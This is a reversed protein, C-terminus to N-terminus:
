VASAPPAAAGTSAPRPRDALQAIRTLGMAPAQDKVISLLTDRQDTRGAAAYAEALRRRHNTAWILAGASEEREIAQEYHHIAADLDGRLEALRGLAGAVSGICMLARASVVLRDAFPALLDELDAGLELDGLLYAAESLEKTASLWNTDRPWSRPVGAARQAAVDHRAEEPQGAAALAWVKLARYAWGAPSNRVREGQWLIDIEEAREDALSVIFQLRELFQVNPDRARRGLKAAQRQLERAQEVHGKLFARAARWAPVYWAFASLPMRAATSAYAELEADVARGDGLEELDVIRWTRAQLELGPDEARLALALMERALELRERTHDPGWLVVHRAGLAAALTRADGSNRASSLAATSLEYRRGPDKDYALEFALRAQVRAVLDTDDHGLADLGEELIAVRAPDVAVITVAPGVVGLVARALLVGDHLRRAQSLAAELVSTAEENRDSARLAEGLSLRLRVRIELPAGAADCATLARRLLEAADAPAHSGMLEIAAQDALDAARAVSIAPAAALAHGAAAALLEPSNRVRPELAEVAGAHLATRRGPTLRSTLAEQVLAHVFAMQGSLTAIPSVLHAGVALDLAAFAEEADIRAVAAVLVPDFERGLVAAAELTRQVSPGLADVRSVVLEAIDAPMATGARTFGADLLAELFFPNGGTRAQLNELEGAGLRIHQERSM